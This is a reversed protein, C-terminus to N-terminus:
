KSQNRYMFRTHRPMKPLKREQITCLVCPWDQCLAGCKPCRRPNSLRDLLVVPPRSIQGEWIKRVTHEAVGTQQAVHEFDAEPQKL